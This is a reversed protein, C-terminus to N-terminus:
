SKSWLLYFARRLSLTAANEDWKEDAISMYRPSQILTAAVIEKSDFNPWREGKGTDPVTSIALLSMAVDDDLRRVYWPRPTANRALALLEDLQADTITM